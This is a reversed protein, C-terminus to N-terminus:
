KGEEAPEEPAAQKLRRGLNLRAIRSLEEVEANALDQAIAEPFLMQKMCRVASLTSMGDDNDEPLRDLEDLCGEDELTNLVRLLLLVCCESFIEFMLPSVAGSMDTKVVQSYFRHDSNLYLMCVDGSFDRDLDDIDDIHVELDWLPATAGLARSSAPFMGGSGGTHLVVGGISALESGVIRAYIDEKASSPKVLFLEVSVEARNRVTAVDFTKEIVLSLAEETNSSLVCEGVVVGRIKTEPLMWKMAIGIRAGKGAVICAPVSSKDSFLASPKEIVVNARVTIEDMRPRWGPSILRCHGPKVEEIDLSEGASHYAFRVSAGLGDRVIADPVRPYPLIRDRSM